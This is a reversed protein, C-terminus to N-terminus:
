TEDPVFLEGRAFLVAQGAIEVREGRERCRLFGGRGSVQMASLDKRGLRKAWFPVLMSHASGTVPDEPIGERPAFFRSVFDASVGISSVIIGMADIKVLSGFDPKVARVEAESDLVVLLDRAKYIEKAEVGLAEFLLPPASVPEAPWAPFDMHLWDDEKEVTLVGSQTLFELRNKAAGRIFLVFATALTAHGCLDVESVPTFWRLEFRDKKRVFFATESLNNEAAIRQLLSDPLWDDLPCVAAPNGQFLHNTFADVQYFEIRM